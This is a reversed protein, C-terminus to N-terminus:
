FNQSSNEASLFICFGAIQQLIGRLHQWLLQRNIPEWRNPHAHMHRSLEKGPIFRDGYLHPM